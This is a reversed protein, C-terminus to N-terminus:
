KYRHRGYCQSSCSGSPAHFLGQPRNRINVIHRYPRPLRPHADTAGSPGASSASKKKKSCTCMYLYMYVTAVEVAITTVPVTCYAFNRLRYGSQDFVARNTENRVFPVM